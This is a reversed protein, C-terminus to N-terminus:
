EHLPHVYARQTSRKLAEGQEVADGVKQKFAEVNAAYRQSFIGFTRQAIDQSAAFRFRPIFKTLM